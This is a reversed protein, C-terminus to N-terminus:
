RCVCTALHSPGFQHSAAIARNAPIRLLPAFATRSHWTVGGRPTLLIAVADLCVRESTSGRSVEGDAPDVMYLDGRSSHGPPRLVYSISWGHVVLGSVNGGRKCASAKDVLEEAAGASLRGEAASAEQAEGGRSGQPTARAAALAENRAATWAAAAAAREAAAAEAAAEQQAREAEEKGAAERAEAEAEAEAVELVDKAEDVKANAEDAAARAAAYAAETSGLQKRVRLHVKQAAEVAELAADAAEEAGAVAADAEEEEDDGLEEEPVDCRNHTVRPSM